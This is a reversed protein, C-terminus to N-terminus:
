RKKKKVRKTLFEQMKEERESTKEMIQKPFRTKVMHNYFFWKEGM